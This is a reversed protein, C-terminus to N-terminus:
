ALIYNEIAYAVGHDDNTTTIYNSIEKLEDIANKMAIGTGSVQFMSYYNIIEGLIYTNEISINCHNAMLKLGNGKGADQHSIELKEEGSATLAIDTRSNLVRYVRQLKDDNFSLMFIKYVGEETYDHTNLDPTPIIGH